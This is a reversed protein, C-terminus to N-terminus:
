RLLDADLPEASMIKAAGTRFEAALLTAINLLNLKQKTM